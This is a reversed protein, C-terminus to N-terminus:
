ELSSDITIKCRWRRWRWWWWWWWRKRREVGLPLILGVWGEIGAPDTFLSRSPLYLCTHNMVRQCIFATQAPLVTLDRSFAHWVQAGYLHSQSWSLASYLDVNVKVKVKGILLLLLLLLWCTSECAFDTSKTQPNSAVQHQEMNMLHVM